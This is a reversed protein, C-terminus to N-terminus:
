PRRAVAVAHDKGLGFAGYASGTKVRFGAARLHWAVVSRPVLRLRHEEGTRRYLRGRKRYSTITRTLLRTDADEITRSAVVWTDTVRERSFLRPLGRSPELFDFLFLGGPVLADFVRAFFVGPRDLTATRAEYNVCEGVSVIVSARPLSAEFMDGVRFRAKPATRRALRIMAPSLDIGLVDYGADTLIAALIGSGCGLDVIRGADIGNRRLTALVGPAVDRAFAGHGDHHIFALDEGYRTQRESPM